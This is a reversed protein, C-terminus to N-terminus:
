RLFYFLSSRANGFIVRSFRTLNAPLMLSVIRIARFPVSGAENLWGHIGDEDRQKKRRVARGAAGGGGKTPKRIEPNTRWANPCFPPSPSSVMASSPTVCEHEEGPFIGEMEVRFCAGIEFFVDEGYKGLLARIECLRPAPFFSVSILRFDGPRPTRLCTRFLLALGSRQCRLAELRCGAGYM